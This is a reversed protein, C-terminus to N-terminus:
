GKVGTKSKVETARRELETKALHVVTRNGSKENLRLEKKLFEDSLDRVYKGKNIGSPWTTYQVATEKESSVGDPGYVDLIAQHVGVRYQEGTKHDIVDNRSNFSRLINNPNTFDNVRWADAEHRSLFLDIYVDEITYKNIQKDDENKIIGNESEFAEKCHIDAIFSYVKDGYRPAEFFPFDACPLNSPHKATVKIAKQAKLILTKGAKFDRLIALEDLAAEADPIM